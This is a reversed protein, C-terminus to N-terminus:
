RWKQTYIDDAKGYTSIWLKKGKKDADKKDKAEFYIGQTSSKRSTRYENM